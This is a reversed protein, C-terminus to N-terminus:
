SEAFYYGVGSQTRIYRPSNPTLELKKRLRSISVWLYQSENEYGPGWVETLLQKHTVTKGRNRVLCDLVNYQIPSLDIPENRLFVTRHYFDVFLDGVRIENPGSPDFTHSLITRLTGLVDKDPTSATLLDNAGVQICHIKTQANAHDAIMLIPVSMQTRLRQCLTFSNEDALNLDLIILDPSAVKLNFSATENTQYRYIKFNEAELLTKLRLSLVSKGEILMVSPVARNLTSNEIQESGSVSELLDSHENGDLLQTPATESPVGNGNISEARSYAKAFYETYSNDFQEWSTNAITASNRIKELLEVRNNHSYHGHKEEFADIDSRLNSQATRMHQVLSELASTSGTRSQQDQHIVGMWTPRGLKQEVRIFEISLEIDQHAPSVMVIPYDHDGDSLTMQRRATQLEDYIAHPSRSASAITRLLGDVDQNIWEGVAVSTLETFQPNCFTVTQNEDVYFIGERISSIISMLETQSRVAINRLTISQLARIAIQAINEFLYIDLEDLPHDRNIALMVLGLTDNSVVIPLLVFRNTAFLNTLLRAQKANVDQLNLLSAQATTKLGNQFDQLIRKLDVRDLDTIRNDSRSDLLLAEGTQPNQCYILVRNVGSVDSLTSGLLHLAEDFNQSKAFVNWTDVLRKSFSLQRTQLENQYARLLVSELQLVFQEYIFIEQNSVSVTRPLFFALAGPQNGPYTFPVIIASGAKDVGESLAFHPNLSIDDYVQVRRNQVSWRIPHNEDNLDVNDSLLNATMLPKKVTSSTYFHEDNLVITVASLNLLNIIIKVGQLLIQKTDHFDRLLTPLSSVMDIKENRSVIRQRYTNQRLLIQLQQHIEQVVLDSTLVLDAGATVLSEISSAFRESLVGVPFNPFNRKLERVIGLAEDEFTETDIILLDCRINNLTKAVQQFDDVPLVEAFTELSSTLWSIERRTMLLILTSQTSIQKEVTNLENLM